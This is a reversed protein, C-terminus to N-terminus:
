AEVVSIRQMAVDACVDRYKGSPSHHPNLGTYAPASGSNCGWQSSVTKNGYTELPIASHLAGISTWSGYVSDPRQVIEHRMNLALMTERQQQSGEELDDHLGLFLFVSCWIM